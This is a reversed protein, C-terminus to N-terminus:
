WRDGTRKTGRPRRYRDQKALDVTVVMDRRAAASRPTARDPGPVPFRMSTPLESYATACRFTEDDIAGHRHMHKLVWFDPRVHDPGRWEEDRIHDRVHRMRAVFNARGDPRDAAVFPVDNCFWCLAQAPFTDLLHRCHHEIWEATEDLRYTRECGLLASFECWLAHPGPPREGAPPPVAPLTWHLTQLFPPNRGQRSPASSPSSEPRTDRTFVTSTRSSPRGRGTTTSPATLTDTEAAATYYPEPHYDGDGYGDGARGYWPPSSWDYVQVGTPLTEFRNRDRRRSHFGLFEDIESPNIASNSAPGSNSAM